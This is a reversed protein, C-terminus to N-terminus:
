RPQKRREEPESRLPNAARTEAQTEPRSARPIGGDSRRAAGRNMIADRIFARNLVAGVLILGTGLLVALTGYRWADQAIMASAVLVIGVGIAAEGRAHRPTRARRRREVPVIAGDEVWADALLAVGVLALLIGLIVPIHELRM